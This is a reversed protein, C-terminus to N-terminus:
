GRIRCRYGYLERNMGIMKKVRQIAFEDGSNDTIRDGEKPEAIPQGDFDLRCFVVDQDYQSAGEAIADDRVGGPGGMYVKMTDGTQPRIIDVKVATLKLLNYFQSINM